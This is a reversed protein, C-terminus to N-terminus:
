KKERLSSLDVYVAAPCSSRAQPSRGGADVKRAVPPKPPPQKQVTAPAGQLLTPGGSPLSMPASSVPWPMGQTPYTVFPMQQVGMQMQQNTAQSPPKQPPQTPPSEPPPTQPPHEPPQTRPMRSEAPGTGAFFCQQQAHAGDFYASMPSMLGGNFYAECPSQGGPSRLSRPTTDQSRPFTNRTPLPLKMQSAM